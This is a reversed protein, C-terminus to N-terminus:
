LPPQSILHRAQEWIRQPFHNQNQAQSGNGEASPASQVESCISGGLLERYVTHKPFGQAHGFPLPRGPPKPPQFVTSRVRLDCTRNGCPGTHALSSCGRCSLSHSGPAPSGCFFLYILSSSCIFSHVLSDTDIFERSELSLIDSPGLRWHTRKRSTIKVAVSDSHRGPGRPSLSSAM